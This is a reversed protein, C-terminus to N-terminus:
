AHETVLDHEVRQPGLFKLEGAGRVKSIEGLPRGLYATGQKIKIFKVHKCNEIIKSRDGPLPIEWILISSHTAM